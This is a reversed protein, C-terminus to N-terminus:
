NYVCVCTYIHLALCSRCLAAGCQMPCEVAERAPAFSVVLRLSGAHQPREAQADAPPARESASVSPAGADRLVALPQDFHRGDELARAVAGETLALSLAGIRRTHPAEPRHQELVEVELVAPPAPAAPAGHGCAPVTDCGSSVSLVQLCSPVLLEMDECWEFVSASGAGQLVAAHVFQTRLQAQEPEGRRQDDDDGGRRADGQGDASSGRAQEAETQAAAAASPRHQSLHAGGAAAGSLAVRVAVCAGPGSVALGNAGLVAVYLVGGGQRQTPGSASSLRGLPAGDDGVQYARPPTLPSPVSHAPSHPQLPLM